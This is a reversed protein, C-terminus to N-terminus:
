EGGAPKKRRRRRRKRTADGGGEGSVMKGRVAGDVEQFQTWWDALETM